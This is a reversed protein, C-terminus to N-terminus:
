VRFWDQWASWETMHAALASYGGPGPHAGDGSAAEALWVSSQLLVGVTDRYPVGLDRCLDHLAESLTRIRENTASDTLPPPGVMLTPEWGAAESLITRANTVAEQHSVRCGGAETVCDNAGFSFVLRGDTDHPLRLSAEQRWRRAIDASTDRRIGLNYYTLDHGRSRMTSCIRGAWGLCDPDGTGNVFSDGFFCVRM